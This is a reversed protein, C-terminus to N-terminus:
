KRGVGVGLHLLDQILVEIVVVPHVCSLHFQDEERVGDSMDTPNGVDDSLGQAIGEQQPHTATPPLTEGSQHCVHLARGLVDPPM